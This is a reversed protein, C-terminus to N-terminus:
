QGGSASAAPAGGFDMRIKKMGLTDASLKVAGSQVQNRQLLYAIVNVYQTDTLSGPRDEPMTNSILSYLDYLRRNKWSNSFTTGDLQGSPHCHTCTSDYLQKGASAQDASYTAAPFSANLASVVEPGPGSRLDLSSGPRYIPHAMRAGLAHQWPNERNCAALSFVLAVAVIPRQARM